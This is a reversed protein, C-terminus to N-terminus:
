RYGCYAGRQSLKDLRASNESIGKLKNESLRNWLIYDTFTLMFHIGFSDHESHNIFLFCQKVTSLCGLRDMNEQLETKKVMNNKLAEVEKAM